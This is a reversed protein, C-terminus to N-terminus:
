FQHKQLAVVQERLSSMENVLVQNRAELQSNKSRAENLTRRVAEPDNIRSMVRIMLWMERTKDAEHKWDPAADYFTGCNRSVATMGLVSKITGRPSIWLLGWRHPVEEPKILGQPCLFYRYDGVGGGIARHPKAHDALFDARSIKCEV